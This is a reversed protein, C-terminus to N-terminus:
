SADEVQHDVVIVDRDRTTGSRAAADSKSV